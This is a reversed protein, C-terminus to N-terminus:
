ARRTYSPSNNTFIFIITFQHCHSATNHLKRGLLQRRKGLTVPLRHISLTGLRASLTPPIVTVLQAPRRQYLLQPSQTHQGISRQSSQGFQLQPSQTRTRHGFLNGQGFQPPHQQMQILFPSVLRGLAIKRAILLRGIIHLRNEVSVVLQRGLPQGNALMQELRQTGVRKVATFLLNIWALRIDLLKVAQHGALSLEIRLNQGILIDAAYAVFDYVVLPRQLRALM